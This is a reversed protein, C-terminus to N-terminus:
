YQNYIFDPGFSMSLTHLAVTIYATGMAQVVENSGISGVSKNGLVQVSMPVLM